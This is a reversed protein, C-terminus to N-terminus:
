YEGEVTISQLVTFDNHDTARFDYKGLVDGPNSIIHLTNEFTATTGNTLQQMISHTGDNVFTTGDKAWSVSAVPSGTTICLLTFANNTSTIRCETISIPAPFPVDPYYVINLSELFLSVRIDLPIYGWM